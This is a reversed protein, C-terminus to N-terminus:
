KNNIWAASTSDDMLEELTRMVGQAARSKVDVCHLDSADVCHLDSADVCHLDSADV